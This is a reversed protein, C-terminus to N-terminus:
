KIKQLAAILADVESHLVVIYAELEQDTTENMALKSHIHIVGVSDNDVTLDDSIVIKM